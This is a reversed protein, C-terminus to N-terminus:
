PRNAAGTTEITGRDDWDGTTQSAMWLAWLSALIMMLSPKHVHHSSDAVNSWFSVSTPLTNQIHIPSADGTVPLDEEVSSFEMHM